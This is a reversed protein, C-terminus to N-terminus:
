RLTIILKEEPPICTRMCTNKKTIRTKLLNLLEDFCAVSMRTFNFFKEEDRRAQEYLTYFQGKRARDNVIPHIWM